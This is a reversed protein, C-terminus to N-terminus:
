VTRSVAQHVRKIKRLRQKRHRPPEAVEGDSLTTLRTIGLAVGVVPGTNEPVVQEREVPVSFVYWRGAHAAVSASLLKVGSTPLYGREKLRRRGQRPLQIADAVVVRSGTRRCAGLGRKKSQHKPYGLKGQHKGARRPKVRECFRDFARDLN